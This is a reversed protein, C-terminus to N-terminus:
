QYRSTCNIPVAPGNHDCRVIGTAGSDLPYRISVRQSGAPNGCYARARRPAVGAYLAWRLPKCHAKILISLTESRNPAGVQLANCGDCTGSCSANSAQHRRRMRDTAAPCRALRAQGAAQMAQARGEVAAVAEKEVALVPVAKAPAAAVAM